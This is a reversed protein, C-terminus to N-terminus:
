IDLIRETPEGATEEEDADPRWHAGWKKRPVNNAKQMEAQFTSRWGYLVQMIPYECDIGFRRRMKEWNSFAYEFVDEVVAPTERVLWTKLHQRLYWPFSPCDLSPFTRNWLVRYWTVLETVSYPDSSSGIQYWGNELPKQAPSDRRGRTRTNSTRINKQHKQNVEETGSSAFFGSFVAQLGGATRKSRLIPTKIPTPTFARQILALRDTKTDM